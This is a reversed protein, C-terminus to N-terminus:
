FVKPIMVLHTGFEGGYDDDKDNDELNGMFTVAMSFGEKLLYITNLVISTHRKKSVQHPFLQNEGGGLGM